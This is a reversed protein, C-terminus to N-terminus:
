PATAATLVLQTGTETRMKKWTWPQNYNQRDRINTEAALQKDLAQPRFVRLSFMPPTPPDDTWEM